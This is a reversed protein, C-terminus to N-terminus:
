RDATAIEKMPLTRNVKPDKGSFLDEDFKFRLRIYVGQATYEEASLDKDRFGYINYGTSLWLNTAVLYGVEGGLGYRCSNIFGSFLASYNLGADWKSTLDYITRGSLLHTNSTSSLGNSDEFM